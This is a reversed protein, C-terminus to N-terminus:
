SRSGKCFRVHYFVVDPSRNHLAGLPTFIFLFVVFLKRATLPFELALLSPFHIYLAQISSITEKRRAGTV